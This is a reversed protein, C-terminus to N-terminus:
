GRQAYSSTSSSAWRAGPPHPMAAIGIPNPVAYRGDTLELTPSLASQVLAVAASAASLWAIPRWRRSLLRGTPFLLPTFVLALAFLLQAAVAWYWAAATALPWPGPRTVYAYLAYEGALPATATLLGIASFLWGIPHGPRRAVILAGVVMFMTFALLVGPIGPDREFSGNAVALTALLVMGVVFTALMSWAVWVATHGKV